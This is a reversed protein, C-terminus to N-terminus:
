HGRVPAVDREGRLRRGFVVGVTTGVSASHDSVGFRMGGDIGFAEGFQHYFGGFIYTGSPTNSQSVNQAFAEAYLRTKKQLHYSLAVSQQGGYTCGQMTQCDTQVISGNVILDVDGSKGYHHNLLLIAQQGYGQLSSQSASPVELEYQIGVGPAVRHYQEKRLEVKGGIQMTGVGNVAEGEGGQHEFTSWGFDLRLRPLAAYTATTAITQQNGPTSQPYADYGVEVQLVGASQMSASNAVTPRTPSMDLDQGWGEAACGLLGVLLVGSRAMPWSKLALEGARTGANKWHRVAGCQEGGMGVVPVRGWM